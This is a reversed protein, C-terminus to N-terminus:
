AKASRKAKGIYNWQITTNRTAMAGRQAKNTQAVSAAM